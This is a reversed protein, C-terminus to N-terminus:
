RGEPEALGLQARWEEIWRANALRQAKLAKVLGAGWARPLRPRFAAVYTSLGLRSAERAQRSLLRLCGIGLDALQTGQSLAVEVRDSPRTIVRAEAEGEAVYRALAPYPSATAGPVTLLPDPPTPGSRALICWDAADLVTRASSYMLEDERRIHGRMGQAFNELRRALASRHARSGPGRELLRLQRLLGQGARHSEDHDRRLVALAAEHVTSRRAIREFMRDERPHHYRNQFNVVYDVAETLLQETATDPTDVWIRARRGILALVRGFRAHEHRLEHFM